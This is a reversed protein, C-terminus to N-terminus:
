RYAEGEDIEGSTFELGGFEGARAGVFLKAVFEQKKAGAFSKKGARRLEEVGCFSGEEFAGAADLGTEIVPDELVIVSVADQAFLEADGFESAEPEVIM